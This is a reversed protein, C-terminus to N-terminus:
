NAFSYLRIVIRRLVALEGEETYIAAVGQAGIPYKAQDEDDLVIKVAFRGHIPKPLLHYTPIRGSPLYQGGGLRVTRSVPLPSM